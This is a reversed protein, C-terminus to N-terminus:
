FISNYKYYDLWDKLKEYQKDSLGCSNFNSLQKELETLGSGNNNTFSFNNGVCKEFSKWSKEYFKSFRENSFWYQILKLSDLHIAAVRIDQKEPQTLELKQEM